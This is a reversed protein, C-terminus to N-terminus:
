PRAKPPKPERPPKPEKTPKTEKPRGKAGQKLMAVRKKAAEVFAAGATATYASWKAIAEEPANSELALADLALREADTAAFSQAFGATRGGRRVVEIMLARTRQTDGLRDSVLASVVLVDLAYGSAITKQAEELFAAADDLGRKPDETNSMLAMAARLFVLGRSEEPMLSVQPVLARYHKAAENFRGSRSLAWALAEKAKPDDAARPDIALAREFADLSAKVNGRAIEARGIAIAPASKGPVLKDADTAATIASEPESAVVGQARAILDCYEAIHPTRALQWVTRRKQAGTASCEAPRGSATAIASASTQQPTIVVLGLALAIFVSM